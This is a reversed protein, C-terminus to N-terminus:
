EPNALIDEIMEIFEESLSVHTLNQGWAKQWYNQTNEGEVWVVLVKM